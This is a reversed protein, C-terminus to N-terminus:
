GGILRAIAFAAGAALSGILATQLSSRMPRTGTFRGKVFGFILLAILTLTVSLLLASSATHLFIYPSLPILGGAIYAGAITIASTLARRPDPKELGLEFRMMFDIWNKPQRKLAQVIPWTEDESLGYQQFVEAVERMEEHPIEAVEKKEREREKAYHEADSKAAMYGGLGMAISGAAIEALGATVIIGTAQIAGTLGAALAFPVTLGDAMGIVIDRVVESSTFHREIHPTQPM